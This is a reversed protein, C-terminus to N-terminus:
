AMKEVKYGGEKRLMEAMVEYNEIKPTEVLMPLKLKQAFEEAIFMGALQISYQKKNDKLSNQLSMLADEASEAAVTIVDDPYKIIYQYIKKM